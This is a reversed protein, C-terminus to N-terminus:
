VKLCFAVIPSGTSAVGRSCDLLDRVTLGEDNEMWVLNDDDLYLYGREIAAKLCPENGRKCLWAVIARRIPPQTLLIKNWSSQTDGIPTRLKAKPPRFLQGPLGECCCHLLPNITIAGTRETAALFQAATFDEPYSPWKMNDFNMDLGTSSAATVGNPVFGLARQLMLSGKITAHWTRSVRQALLVDRPPLHSIITERLETTALTREM